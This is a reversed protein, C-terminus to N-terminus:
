YVYITKSLYTHHSQWIHRIFLIFTPMYLIFAHFIQLDVVKFEYQTNQLCRKYAVYYLNTKQLNLKLYQAHIISFM